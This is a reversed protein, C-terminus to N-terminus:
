NKLAETITKLELYKLATEFDPCILLQELDSSSLLDLERAHIRSVAYTYQEVM